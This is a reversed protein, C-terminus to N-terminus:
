GNLWQSGGSVLTVISILIWCCLYYLTQTESLVLSCFQFVSLLHLLRAQQLIRLLVCGNCLRDALHHRLICTGLCSTMTPLTMTADQM